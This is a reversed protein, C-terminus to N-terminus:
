LTSPTRSPPKGVRYRHGVRIGLGEFGGQEGMCTPATFLDAELTGSVLEEWIRFPSLKYLAALDVIHRTSVQLPLIGRSGCPRPSTQVDSCLRM